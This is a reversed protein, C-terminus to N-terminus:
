LEGSEISARRSFEKNQSKASVRGECVSPILWLSSSASRVSMSDGRFGM